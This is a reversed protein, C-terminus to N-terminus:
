RNICYEKILGYAKISKYIEDVSIEDKSKYFPCEKEFDTDRLAICYGNDYAFCKSNNCKPTILEM